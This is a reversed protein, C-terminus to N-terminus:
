SFTELYQAYKEHTNVGPIIQEFQKPITHERSTFQKRITTVTEYPQEWQRLLRILERFQEYADGHRYFLGVIQLIRAYTAASSEEQVINLIPAIKEFLDYYEKVTIMLRKAELLDHGQLREIVESIERIVSFDKLDYKKFLALLKLGLEHKSIENIEKLYAQIAERGEETNILPLIEIQKKKIQKAFTEKNIDEELNDAIYQYFEQQKRSRYRLETAELKLFSKQAVIAARLLEVKYNLEQYDPLKKSVDVKFNILIKFEETGFKDDDIKEAKKGLIVVDKLAKDHLNLSREPIPPKGFNQQYNHKIAEFIGKSFRSGILLVIIIAPIGITLMRFATTASIQESNDLNLSHNNLIEKVTQLQALNDIKIGQQNLLKLIETNELKQDSILTELIQLQQLDKIDINQEQLSHLKEQNLKEQDISDQIKKLQQINELKEQRKQLGDLMEDEAESSKQAIFIPKSDLNTIKANAEVVQINHFGFISIIAMLSLAQLRTM